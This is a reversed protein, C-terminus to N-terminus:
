YNIENYKKYTRLKSIRSLLKEAEQNFQYSKLIHEANYLTLSHQDYYEVGDIICSALELQYKQENYQTFEEFLEISKFHFFEAKQTNGEYFYISALNKFLVAVNHGYKAPNEEALSSLYPLAQKYFFLAKDYKKESAYISALNNQVIALSETYAESDTQVFEKLLKLSTHYHRTAEEFDAEFFYLSALDCHLKGLEHNYEVVGRNVLKDAFLLAEKYHTKAHEFLQEEEYFEILSLHILFIDVEQYSYPSQVELIKYYELAENFFYQALQKNHYKHHLHAVKKSTHALLTVYSLLSTERLLIRGLSIIERYEGIALDYREQREYLKARLNFLEILKTRYKSPNRNALKVICTYAESYAKQALTYQVQNTQKEGVEMLSKILTEDIITDINYM